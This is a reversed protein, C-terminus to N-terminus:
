KIVCIYSFNYMDVVSGYLYSARIIAMIILLQTVNPSYALNSMNKAVLLNPM